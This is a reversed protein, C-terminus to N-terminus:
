RQRVRLVWLVPRLGTSVLWPAGAVLACSGAALALFGAALVVWPVLWEFMSADGLRTEDVFESVGYFLAYGLRHQGCRVKADVETGKDLLDPAQLPLSDQVAIGEGALRVYALAVAEAEDQKGRSATFNAAIRHRHLKGKFVRPPATRVQVDVDLEDRRERKYAWLVRHVHKLPLKMELEWPGDKAGLRMIPETSDAWRGTWEDRFNGNFVTWEQRKLWRAENPTFGPARMTFYVPQGPMAGIRSMLAQMEAEKTRQTNRALAAKVELNVRKDPTTENRAFREDEGAETGAAKAESELIALKDRVEPDFLRALIRDEPLVEGPLVEFGEIVGPAPVFIDRCVAPRLTGTSDVKLPYPVLTVGGLLVFIGALLVAVGMGRVAYHLGARDMMRRQPATWDRRRTFRRISAWEWWSPLHRSTPKSQWLAAREALRLEARGRRTEKQKRTLWDRLSHVLYDHTLQYHRVGAPVVPFAQEPEKGEPDTPTILRLDGDLIRLLDYFDRPRSAYGSAALLEAYSRMHGKLDTGAEPLLAKLVARAAKQHLRHKPNATPSSFAEELFTVGIGETGGVEKLAAPTWPKGKVMEAFVALRASVIKGDQSLGRVAQDLFAAQEKSVADAREPLAGFARGFAALVKRAHRPDFLDVLAMNRGQLLEVELDGMFRSVALWFDDRVLVIGQVRGGDCQRLAQVLEPNEDSRRAHLWQEFQDLVLLVKRGPQLFRGQRLAALSGALGLDGPLEPVQRRLGKLLRVETDQGTAEVYVAAVQQALRPLLGAQVLSSKGCGSPGYIMGVAFTQDPDTDEIRTKWFRVSDPLGERDRPGPLLEPFFDADHADFARLGKPVIRLPPTDSCPGSGLPTSSGVTAAIRATAPPVVETPPPAHQAQGGLISPRSDTQEALYHRLDDAVDRATAYRESARKALAKLCIRELEKPITDDWQRLPRVEMGTIQELLEERGDAPFPRRGTLLEYLVVGLSFIDSRGDVRHGEGRAQEPSMYAPTGVYRPGKGVDQERLALGFDAVFPKGSNDLLINGPKIDRHVVGRKHAYHLPEAVTAVLRGAETLSLRLEQARARLSSGNIYKSVVFCPFQEASGVDYVLVINPHDLSAVTRAEALHAEADELRSVLKRHPVKIAVPRELEDDHALYVRGFGGEGLLRQVRYRGIHAPPEGSAGEGATPVPQGEPEPVTRVPDAHEGRAPVVAGRAPNLVVAVHSSRLADEVEFLAPLQDALQPFRRLYEDLAPAECQRRRLQIEHYILDLVGEPDQAPAPQDALYDEV